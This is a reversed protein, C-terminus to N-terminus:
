EYMFIKLETLESKTLGLQSKTEAGIIDIKNVKNLAMITSNYKEFPCLSHSDDFEVFEDDIIIVRYDTQEGFVINEYKVVTGHFQLAIYVTDSQNKLYIADSKIRMTMPEEFDPKYLLSDYINNIRYVNIVSDCNFNHLRKDNSYHVCLITEFNLTLFADAIGISNEFERNQRIISCNIDNQPIFDYALSDLVIKTKLSCYYDQYKSDQIFSYIITGSVNKMEAKKDIQASCFISMTM